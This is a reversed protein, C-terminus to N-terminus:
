PPAMIKIVANIIRSATMEIANIATTTRWDPFLAPREPDIAPPASVSNPPLFFPMSSSNVLAVMTNPASKPTTVIDSTRKICYGTKTGNTATRKHRRKKASIYPHMNGCSRLIAYEIDRM